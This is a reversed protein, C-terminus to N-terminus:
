FNYSLMLTLLNANTSEGVLQPPMVFQGQNGDFAESWLYEANISLNHMVDYRVGFMVSQSQRWKWTHAYMVYPHWRDLNLASAIYGTHQNEDKEFEAWLEWTDFEYRGGVSYANLEAQVDNLTYDAFLYSANVVYNPGNLKISLGTQVDTEIEFDMVGLDVDEHNHRGYFPQVSLQMEDNINYSYLFDIGNVSNVGLMAGYVELPPRAWPYGNGVYFYESAVFMPVRLRGGRVELNDSPRWGVYAWELSPDSFTDQPRKAVQVSSWISDTLSLDLQLGVTTDCDYCWDDEFQYLAYLPVSNDTKTASVSAFGSLSLRDEILEVAAFIPSSALMLVLWFLYRKM